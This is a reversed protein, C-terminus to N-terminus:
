ALTEAQRQVAATPHREAIRLIVLTFKLNYAVVHQSYSGIVQQWGVGEEEM